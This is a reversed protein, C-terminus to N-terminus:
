STRARKSPTAGAESWPVFGEGRIWKYWCGLGWHYKYPNRPNWWKNWGKSEELWSDDRSPDAPASTGGDPADSMPATETPETSEQQQPEEDGGPLGHDIACNVDGCMECQM